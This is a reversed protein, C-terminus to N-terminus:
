QVEVTKAHSRGAGIWRKKPKPRRPRKDPPMVLGEMPNTVIFGYRVASRLISSLTDRVKLISPYAVRESVLGSFYRQVTLPTLDRLCLSKFRTELYKAIIGQYSNRTTQALLPLETPIYTTQMYQNFNVASGVSILGQNVPRLIEAAIKKVEREPMTAPALKVRHLKRTRVGGIFEDQRVRVYWYKGAREPKPDQFRRKAMAEFVGRHSASTAAEPSVIGCKSGLASNHAATM